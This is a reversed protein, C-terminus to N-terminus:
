TDEELPGTVFGNVAYIDLNGDNDYDLFDAAWSWQADRVGAADSVDTFTGDGNNLLLSNGRTLEETIQDARIQVQKTFIGLIRFYWPIPTPFDPHFLTWGSNAHMGALFLDLDGDGDVDGWATSMTSGGDVANAERARELFTGDGQNRYLRNSGFENGVYLDPWGDLDYDGWAAAFDWGPSDVGAEKSVDDFTGNGM